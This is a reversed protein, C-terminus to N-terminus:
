RNTQVREGTPLPRPRGDVFVATLPQRQIAGYDTMTLVGTVGEFSSIEGGALQALRPYLRFSDIGLARLRQLPGQTARLTELVQRKLPDQEELVWPTDTFVIGNLDQNALQNEQGDYIASMAYVPVDGAFYFALTPKIQRGQRPNAMLYIFDIDQRRRPTFEVQNRPLISTIRAARAESSDIALLHKVLGSFENDTSFTARSVVEGGLSQWYSTFADQLRQYDDSAPAIIAANHYGADRALHAAQRIEDEPALGFQYFAPSNRQTNDTYNLALTPVPLNPLYQLQRVLAKDLPGIILDAGEAVATDYLGYIDLPAGPDLLPTTDFLSIRPVETGRSLAEYYASLFGEQVAKGVQDRLPLLLAIHRPRQDWVSQLNLLSEPPHVLASHQAWISRWRQMADLQRRVSDQNSRLQRALEVWGRSEYSAANGAMAALQQDSLSELVTWVRDPIGPLNANAMAANLRILENAAVDTQDTQLYAQALLDGLQYQLSPDQLASGAVLTGTLWTLAQDAHDQRLALEGRLLAYRLQLNSDLTGVDQVEDVLGAVAGDDEDRLLTEMAAILYAESEPRRSNRALSLLTNVPVRTIDQRVPLTNDPPTPSSSCTLLALFLAAVLTSRMFSTSM